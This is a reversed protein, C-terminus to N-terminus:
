TRDAIKNLVNQMATTFLNQITSESAEVGQKLFPRGRMYRTGEHVYIAYNATPEVTGTFGLGSGTYRTTHSARLRGTLVPTRLMSQGQVYLTSKTIAKTFEEGMFRPAAGFAARIQPLNKITISVQM